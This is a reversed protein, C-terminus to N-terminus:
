GIVPVQNFAGRFVVFGNNLWGQGFSGEVLYWIRNSSIGLVALTTGGQVSTIVGHAVGPGSRINLRSTNVVARPTTGTLVPSTEVPSSTSGLRSFDGRTVAYYSNVWGNGAPSAVEYWLRDSHISIVPLETGGVVSTLVRHGVGAGSRVNLRYTNVVLRPMGPDTIVPMSATDDAMGAGVTPMGSFNGRAVTYYSNVWGTGATSNVQYWVGGSDRSSVPLETGGSVTLIVNFSVGPGSRINLYSVNVVLRPSGVPIVITSAPQADRQAGVTPVGTFNGRGVTYNTNVWGTGADSSIQYWLGGSDKGLVPLQTGGAVSTVISYGVGPGNRVNLRHANVVLHPASQAQIVTPLVALLMLAFLRVLRVRYCMISNM